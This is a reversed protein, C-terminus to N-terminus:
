LDSLSDIGIKTKLKEFFVGALQPRKKVNQKKVIEKIHSDISTPAISLIEAIEKSSLGEITYIFIQFQRSTLDKKIDSMVENLELRISPSSSIRNRLKQVEDELDFARQKWKFKSNIEYALFFVAALIIFFFLVFWNLPVSM